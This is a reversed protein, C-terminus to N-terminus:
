ESEALKKMLSEAYQYALLYRITEDALGFRSKVKEADTQGYFGAVSVEKGSTSNWRTRIARVDVHTFTGYLGIGGSKGLLTEAYQAVELPTVGGVRLDAATGQLHQSKPSGGVKTNHSATRYASNITVPQGFHTRINELVAVLEESILVSDSGDQCRFERVRFHDSLKKTGDKLVSYTKIAM